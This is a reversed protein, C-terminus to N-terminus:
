CSKDWPTTWLPSQRRRGSGPSPIPTPPEGGWNREKGGRGKRPLPPCLPHPNEWTEFPRRRPCVDGKCGPIRSLDRLSKRRRIGRLGPRPVDYTTTDLRLPTLTNQSSPHQGGSCRYRLARSPSIMLCLVRQHAHGELAGPGGCDRCSAASTVFTIRFLGPKLVTIMNLDHGLHEPSRQRSLSLSPQYM